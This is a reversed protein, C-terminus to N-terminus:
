VDQYRENTGINKATFTDGVRSAVSYSARTSPARTWHPHFAFWRLLHSRLWLLSAAQCRETSTWAFLYDWGDSKFLRRPYIKDLRKDKLTNRFLYKGAYEQDRNVCLQCDISTEKNVCLIIYRLSGFNGKIQRPLNTDSVKWLKHRALGVNNWIAVQVRVLFPRILSQPHLHSLFFAGSGCYSITGHM